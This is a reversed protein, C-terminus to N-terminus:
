LSLNRRLYSRLFPLRTLVTKALRSIRPYRYSFAGALRQLKPVRRLEQVRPKFGGIRPRIRSHCKLYLSAQEDQSLEKLIWDLHHTKEPGIWFYELYELYRVFAEEERCLTPYEVSENSSTSHNRILQCYAGEAVQFRSFDPFDSYIDVKFFSRESFWLDVHVQNPGVQSVDIRKLDVRQHADVIRKALQLGDLSYVDIDDGSSIWPLNEDHKVVVDEGPRLCSLVTSASLM